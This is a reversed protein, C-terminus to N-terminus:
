TGFTPEVEVITVEVGDTPTLTQQRGTPRLYTLPAFLHEAEEPFCSLYSLDVGRELFSRTTIKFLLSHASLAYRLAVELNTTSSMPAVETGGYMAFTDTVRLDRMGRWLDLVTHADAADGAITRLRRLGEAILVTTVPFPHPESQSGGLRSRLPENIRAYVASTYLRLAIM